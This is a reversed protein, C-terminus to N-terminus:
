RSFCGRCEFDIANGPLFGVGGAVVSELLLMVFGCGIASVLSSLILM